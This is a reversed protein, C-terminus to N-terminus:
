EHQSEVGQQPPQQPSGIGRANEQQQDILKKVDMPDIETNYNQLKRDYRILRSAVLKLKKEGPFYQYACLTQQDIDMVYCGWLNSSFQAPMLYMGGGGAIPQPSLPMHAPDDAAFASPLIRSADGRAILAVLIAVLLAANVWLGTTLSPKPSSIMM